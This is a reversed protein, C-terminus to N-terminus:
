FCISDPFISTMSTLSLKSYASTVGNGFLIDM